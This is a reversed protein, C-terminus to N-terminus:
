GPSFSPEFTAVAEDRFHRSHFKFRCAAALAKCFALHNSGVGYLEFPMNAKAWNWCDAQWGQTRTTTSNIIYRMFFDGQQEGAARQTSPKIGPAAPENLFQV